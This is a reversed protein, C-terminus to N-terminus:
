EQNAQEVASDSEAKAKDYGEKYKVCADVSALAVQELLIPMVDIKLKGLFKADKYVRRASPNTMYHGLTLVYTSIKICNKIDHGHSGIHMAVKHSAVMASHKINSALSVAREQLTTKFSVLDNLSDAWDPHEGDLYINGNYEDSNVLQLLSELDYENLDSHLEVSVGDVNFEIYDSHKTIPFQFLSILLNVHSKGVTIANM